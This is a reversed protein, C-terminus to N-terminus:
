SVLRRAGQQRRVQMGDRVQVQCAQVNPIGDIEMLCEFCVGMMCYPARPSDSVPTTRCALVGAALLAASVSEGERASVPCDEFRLTVTRVTPTDPLSLRKFMSDRRPLPPLRPPPM